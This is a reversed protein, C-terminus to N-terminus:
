MNSTVNRKADVNDNRNSSKLPLKSLISVAIDDSIYTSVKRNESGVYRKKEM